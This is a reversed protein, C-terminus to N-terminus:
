RCLDTVGSGGFQPLLNRCSTVLLGLVVGALLEGLIAAQGVREMLEGALRAVVLIVLIIFLLEM